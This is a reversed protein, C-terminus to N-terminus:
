TYNYKSGITIIFIYLYLAEIFKNHEYKYWYGNRIPINATNERKSYKKKNIRFLKKQLFNKKSSMCKFLSLKNLESPIMTEFLGPSNIEKKEIKIM